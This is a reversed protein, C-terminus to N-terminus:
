HNIQTLGSRRPVNAPMALHPKGRLIDSVFATLNGRPGAEVFLRVGDAYMNAVTESFLVPRVWHAVFLKRIEEVRTPYRSATTCSWTEIRPASISLRAFFEEGAGEAYAQFMPTHYPRDFPLI